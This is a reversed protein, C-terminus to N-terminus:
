VSYQCWPRSGSLENEFIQRNAKGPLTTALDCGISHQAAVFQSLSTSDSTLSPAWRDGRCIENCCPASELAIYQDMARSSFSDSCLNWAVLTQKIVRLARDLRVKIRIVPLLPLFRSKVRWTIQQSAVSRSLLIRTHLARDANCAGRASLGTARSSVTRAISDRPSRGMIQLAAGERM